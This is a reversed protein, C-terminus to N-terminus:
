TRRPDITSRRNLEQAVHDHMHMLTRDLTRLDSSSLGELQTMADHLVGVLDGVDRIRM